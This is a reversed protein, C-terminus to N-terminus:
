KKFVAERLTNLQTQVSADVIKESTEVICEGEPADDLVKIELREAGSVMEVLYDINKTVIDVSQKSLSLKVWKQSSLDKVANEYIKLFSEKDEALKQNIIKEAIKFSLDIVDKKSEEFIRDKEEDIRNIVAKIENLAVSYENLAAQTAEKYGVKYGLKYGTEKSAAIAANAEELANRKIQEAEIKANEIIKTAEADAQEVSIGVNTIAPISKRKASRAGIYKVSEPELYVFCDKFIESM